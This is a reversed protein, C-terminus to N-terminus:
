ERIMRTESHLTQGELSYGIPWLLDPAASSMAVRVSVAVVDGTREGLEAEVHLTRQLRPDLVRRIEMEVDAVTAGPFSAKRAGIRSAEVVEGRAFFLLSFEFLAMLVLGLIPLALVLELSLLGRRRSQAHRMARASNLRRTLRKRVRRTGATPRSVAKSHLVPRTRTMPSDTDRSHPVPAANM